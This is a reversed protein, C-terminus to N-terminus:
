TPRTPASRGTPKRASGTISSPATRAPAPSRPSARAASISWRPASRWCAPPPPCRPRTAPPATWGTCSAASRSRTAPMPTAPARAARGREQLGEAAHLPRNGRGGGGQRRAPAPRVVGAVRGCRRAGAQRGAPGAGGPLEARDQVSVANGLWGRLDPSLKRPDMFLECGADAHVVAFGLAFPTFPVDDGRINLLWAISAPDTVVAADERAAQLAAAVQERKAESTAGAFQLPQAGAQNLPPAPRDQWITDIPNVALPVMDLGAATFRQVGEESVLLPDYGIRAGKGAHEALWDPPPEETIHRREWLKPDTQAAMQLVYRGDTFVAARDPLVVALGASGSFGTLWRLREAAAPVYESLHEDARPVIFGDM